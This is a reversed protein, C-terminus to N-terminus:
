PETTSLQAARVNAEIHSLEQRWLAAADPPPQHSLLLERARAFDGHRHLIQAAYFLSQPDDSRAAVWREFLARIDDGYLLPQPEDAAATLYQSVAAEDQGLRALAVALYIRAPRLEPLTALVLNLVSVAAAAKGQDLLARGILLQADARSWYAYLTERSAPDGDLAVLAALVFPDGPTSNLAQRLYQRAEDTRGLSLHHQAMLLSPESSQQGGRYVPPSTRELLPAVTSPFDESKVALQLTALDFRWAADFAAPVQRQALGSVVREELPGSRRPFYTPYLDELWWPVQVFAEVILEQGASTTQQSLQRAEDFLGEALRFSQRRYAEDRMAADPLWLSLALLLALGFGLIGQRRQGYFHRIALMAFYIVAPLIALRQRASVYFVVMVALQVGALLYFLLSGQWNRAQLLTGCLALASLLAFPVSPLPLTSEYKWAAPVDHWRFNHCAYLVKLLLRQGFVGPEQRIFHWAKGSWYANVRRISLEEDGYMARALHRYHVHGSDPIQQQSRHILGLVVPPYMASTGRSLPNNGEFFVTGPNMSPTRWDGTAHDARWALLALIAVVPLAFGLSAQRWSAAGAELQSRRWRYYLPVALFAPLFTPRTALCLAALLGALWPAGRRPSELLVIVALLLVLQFIEPEFIREYVLLLPDLALLATGLSAWLPPLRRSLLRHFIGVSIAALLIQLGQLAPGPHAFFQELWLSLQFYLPSFDMLREMPLSGALYHQAALGYKNFSDAMPLWLALGSHVLLTALAAVLSGRVDATREPDPSSPPSALHRSSLM